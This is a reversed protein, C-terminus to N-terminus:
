NVPFGSFRLIPIKKGSDGYLGSVGYDGYKGGSVFIGSSYFFEFMHVHVCQCMQVIFENM